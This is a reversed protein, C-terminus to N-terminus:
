RGPHALEREVRQELETLGFSTLDLDHTSSVLRATVSGLETKLEGLFPSSAFIVLSRYSGQQAQRELHDALERAFRMHEKKKANIRPPYAAGGFTSDMSEHGARDDALDSIKSRSKLHEFSELIVMPSGREYQLLRAHTANAILIFNPKM